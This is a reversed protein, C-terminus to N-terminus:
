AANQLRPQQSICQRAIFSHESAKSAFRECVHSFAVGIHKLELTTMIVVTRSIIVVQHTVVICLLYSALRVVGRSTLATAPVTAFCLSMALITVLVLYAQAESFLRFIDKGIAELVVQLSCQWTPGPSSLSSSSPMTVVGDPLPELLQRSATATCVSDQGLFQHRPTHHTGYHHRAVRLASLESDAGPTSGVCQVSTCALAGITNFISLSMNSTVALQIAGLATFSSFPLLLITVISCRKSLRELFSSLFQLFKIV